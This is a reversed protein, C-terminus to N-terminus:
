KILTMKGTKSINGYNISYIYNGTPLINGDDSKGDWSVSYHGTGNINEPITRVLEGISNYIKIVAKESISEMVQFAIMTSPNFPNPFNKNLIFNSLKDPNKDIAGRIPNFKDKAWWIDKKNNEEHEWIITISDLVVTIFPKVDSGISNSINIVTNEQGWFFPKIFIEQDNVISDSDFAIFFLTFESIGKIPIAYWFFYPNNYNCSSNNSIYSIGYKFSAVKWVNELFSQYSIVEPSAGFRPNLNNEGEESIKVIEWTYYGRSINYSYEAKYIEKHGEEGKEYIISANRHSDDCYIDPNSCNVSDIVIPVSYGECEPHFAKLMLKGNNIYAVRYMSLSPDINDSLSDTISIVQGLSDSYYNRQLLQWHDNVKSQWLIKIGQSIYDIQPNINPITDSYIVINESSDNDIQKIYITFVSDIQNVWCIHTAESYPFGYQLIDFNRNDGPISILESVQFNLGFIQSTYVITFLTIFVIKKVM